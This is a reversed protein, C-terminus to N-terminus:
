SPGNKLEYTQVENKKKKKKPPPPPYESFIFRKQIKFTKHINKTFDCILNTKPTM